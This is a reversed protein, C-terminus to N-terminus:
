AFFNQCQPDINEKLILRKLFNWAASKQAGADRAGFSWKWPAPFKLKLLETLAKEDQHFCLELCAKGAKELNERSLTAPLKKLTPRVRNYLPARKLAFFYTDEGIEQKLANLEKRLVVKQAAEHYYSAGAFLTIKELTPRDLLAIREHVQEFDYYPKPKHPLQAQIAQAISSQLAPCPSASSAIEVLLKEQLWSPHIYAQPRHNLTYISTFLSCRDHLTSRIFDSLRAPAQPM